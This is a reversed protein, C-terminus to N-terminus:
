IGYFVNFVMYAPQSGAERLASSNYSNGAFLVLAFGACVSSAKTQRGGCDSRTPASLSTGTSALTNWTELFRRLGSLM